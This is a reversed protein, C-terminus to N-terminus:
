DCVAGKRGGDNRGGDDQRYLELVTAKTCNSERRSLGEPREASTPCLYEPCLELLNEQLFHAL